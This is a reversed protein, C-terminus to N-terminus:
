YGKKRLYEYTRKSNDSDIYKFYKPRMGRARESEEFGNEIAREIGDIVDDLETYREGFLENEMDLYSGHNEMYMDYDFQYFIVPKGMYYVDWCVSSYDTVLMRCKM